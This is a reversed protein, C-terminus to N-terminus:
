HQGDQQWSALLTVHTGIEVPHESDRSPHFVIVAEHVDDFVDTWFIRATATTYFSCGIFRTYEEQLVPGVADLKVRKSRGGAIDEVERLSTRFVPPNWVGVDSIMSLEYSLRVKRAPSQGTNVVKFTIEPECSSTFVLTAKGFSLYARVQAQGIQRSEDIAREAVILSRRNFWLTVGLGLVGLASIFLQGFSWSAAKEAADAARWQACLESEDSGREDVCPEREKPGQAVAPPTASVTPRTKGGSEYYHPYRKPQGPWDLVTFVGLGYLCIALGFGATIIYGRNGGSM